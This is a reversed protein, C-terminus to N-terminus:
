KEFVVRWQRPGFQLSLGAGLLGGAVAGAVVLGRNGPRCGECLPETARWAAVGGLVVGAAVAGRLVRGLGRRGSEVEVQIVEPHDLPLWFVSAGRRVVVRGPNAAELRGEIRGLDARTTLVRVRARPELNYLGQASSGSPGLALALLVLLGVRMMRVVGTWRSRASRRPGPRAPVGLEAAAYQLFEPRVRLEARYRRVFVAWQRGTKAAQARKVTEASPALEPLWVDYWNQAAYQSKPVGRPPRRVTGIRIV